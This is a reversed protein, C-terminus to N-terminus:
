KIVAYFMVRGKSAPAIPQPFKWRVHTVDSPVAARITGDAKKVKLTALPGYTKNGDISVVAWNEAVGTFSVGNPVPDDISAPIPTTGINAYNLIYVVADGPVARDTPLLVKKKVGKADTVERAIFSEFNLSLPRPAASDPARAAAPKPAGQAFAVAPVALLLGAFISTKL